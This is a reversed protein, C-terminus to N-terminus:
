IERRYILPNGEGTYLCKFNHVGIVKEAKEIRGVIREDATMLALDEDNRDYMLGDIDFFDAERTSIALSEKFYLFLRNRDDEKTRVVYDTKKLEMIMEDTM